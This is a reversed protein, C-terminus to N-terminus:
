IPRQGFRPGQEMVLGMHMRDQEVTKEEMSNETQRQKRAALGNSTKPDPQKGHLTCTWSLANMVKKPDEGYDTTGNKQNLQQHEYRELTSEPDKVAM